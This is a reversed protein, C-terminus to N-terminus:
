LVHLVHKYQHTPRFFPGDNILKMASPDIDVIESVSTDMSPKVLQRTASGLSCPMDYSQSPTAILFTVVTTTASLDGSM